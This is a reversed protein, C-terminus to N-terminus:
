EYNKLVEELQEGSYIIENFTVLTGITLGKSEDFAIENLGRIKKLNIVHEPALQHHYMQPILDTGGALVRALGSYKKLLKCAEILTEPSSYKFDKM